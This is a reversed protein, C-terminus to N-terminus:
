LCVKRKVNSCFGWHMVSSLAHTKESAENASATPDALQYQHYTSQEENSNPYTMEKEEEIEFSPNWILMMALIDMNKLTSESTHKMSTHAKDTNARPQNIM